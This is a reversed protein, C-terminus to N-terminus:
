KFYGLLRLPWDRYALQIVPIALAPHNLLQLM